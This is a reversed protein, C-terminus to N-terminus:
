KHCWYNIADTTLVAHTAISQQWRLMVYVLVFYGMSFHCKEHSCSIKFPDFSGPINMLHLHKETFM